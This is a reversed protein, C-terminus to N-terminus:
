PSGLRCDLPADMCLLRGAESPAAGGLGGQREGLPLIYALVHGGVWGSVECFCLEQLEQLDDKRWEWLTQSLLSASDPKM